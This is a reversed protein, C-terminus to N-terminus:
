QFFAISKLDSGCWNIVFRIWFVAAFNRKNLIWNWATVKYSTWYRIIKFYFFYNLHPLDSDQSFWILPPVDCHLLSSVGGKNTTRQFRRPFWEWRNKLFMKNNKKNDSFLLRGYIDTYQSIKFNVHKCYLLNDLTYFLM